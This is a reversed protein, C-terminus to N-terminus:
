EGDLREDEREEMRKKGENERKMEIKRVKLM